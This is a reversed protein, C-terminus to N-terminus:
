TFTLLNSHGLLPREGLTVFSSHCDPELQVVRADANYIGVQCGVYFLILPPVLVVFINTRSHLERLHVWAEGRKGNALVLSNADKGEENAKHSSPEPNEVM